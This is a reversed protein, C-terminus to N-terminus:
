RPELNNYVDGAINPLGSSLKSLADSTGFDYYVRIGRSVAWEYLRRVDAIPMDVRWMLATEGCYLYVDRVDGWAHRQYKHFAPNLFFPRRDVIKFQWDGNM